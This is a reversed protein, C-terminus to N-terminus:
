SDTPCGIFEDRAPCSAIKRPRTKKGQVAVFQFISPSHVDDRCARRLVSRARSTRTRRHPTGACARSMLIAFKAPIKRIALRRVQHARANKPCSASPVSGTGIMRM